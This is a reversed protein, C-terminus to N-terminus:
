AGDGDRGSCGTVLRLRRPARVNNTRLRAHGAVYWGMDRKPTSITLSPVSTARGLGHKPRDDALEDTHVPLPTM